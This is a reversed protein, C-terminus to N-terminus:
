IFIVKIKTKKYKPNVQTSPALNTWPIDQLSPNLAFLFYTYMTLFFSRDYGRAM